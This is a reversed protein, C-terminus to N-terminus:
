PKIVSKVLDANHMKEFAEQWEELPWVGGMIPDLALDGSGILKIVREWDTWTHSFSGQLTVNKQVLLDISFNMPQPGWGVKTIWGASRVCDLATMLSSSAGTADIVCDVEESWDPELERLGECGYQEAIKLRGDDSPLGFVGVTAGCLRAMAACLLGIPGPGLVLVRDGPEIRSNNAVTNYAVCCPETLAAKEFPVHDPVHHLIRQPVTMHKRMAGNELAGYGRRGPDLNYRGARTLPHNPDIVAATEGVVRDGEAWDRVDSGVERIIGGYEHG